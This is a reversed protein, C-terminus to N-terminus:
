PIRWWDPNMAAIDIPGTPTTWNEDITRVIKRPMPNDHRDLVLVVTLLDGIRRGKYERHVRRLVVGTWAARYHSRVFETPPISSDSVGKIVLGRSSM